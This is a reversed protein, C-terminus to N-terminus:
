LSAFVTDIFVLAIELWEYGSKLHQCVSRDARVLSRPTELPDQTHSKQQSIWISNDRSLRQAGDCRFRTFNSRKHDDAGM